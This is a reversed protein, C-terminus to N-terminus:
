AQLSRFYAMERADPGEEGAPRLGQGLGQGKGQGLREGESSVIEETDEAGMRIGILSGAEAAQLAKRAPGEVLAQQMGARPLAEDAAVSALARRAQLGKVTARYGADQLFHAAGPCRTGPTLVGTAFGRGGRGGARGAGREGGAVGAGGGDGGGGGDRLWVCRRRLPRAHRGLARRGPLARPARGGDRSRLAGGGVPPRDRATGGM